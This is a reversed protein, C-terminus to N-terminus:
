VLFLCAGWLHVIDEGSVKAEHFKRILAPLVHSGQLDYNDGPGYLNTPMVSLYNTGYEFNYKTCLKIVSIKAMAYADNSVIKEWETLQRKTKKNTEKAAHFSSIYDKIRSHKLLTM